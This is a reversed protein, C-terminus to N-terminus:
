GDVVHAQQDRILGNEENKNSVITYFNMKDTGTPDQIVTITPKYQCFDHWSSGKYDSAFKDPVEIDNILSV